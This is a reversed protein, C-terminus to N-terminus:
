EQSETQAKAHATAQELLEMADEGAINIALGALVRAAVAVDLGHLQDIQIAPGYGRWCAFALALLLRDGHSAPCTRIFNYAGTDTGDAELAKAVARDFIHRHRPQVLTSVILETDPPKTTAM